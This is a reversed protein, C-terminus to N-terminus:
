RGNSVWGHPGNTGNRLCGSSGLKLIDGPRGAGPTNKGESVLHPNCEGQGVEKMWCYHTKM